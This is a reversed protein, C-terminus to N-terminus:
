PSYVTWGDDCQGLPPELPFKQLCDFRVMASSAALCQAFACAEPMTGFLADGVVYDLDAAGWFRRVAMGDDRILVYGNYSYQGGFKSWNWRVIGPTRDRLATLACVLAEPNALMLGGDPGCDPFCDFEEKAQVIPCLTEGCTPLSPADGWGGEQDDLICACVPGETDGTTDGGTDECAFDVDDDTTGGTTGGTTGSTTGGTTGGTTTGTGTAEVDTTGPETTPTTPMDGTTAQADSSSGATTTGTDDGTGPCGALLSALVVLKLLPAVSPTM